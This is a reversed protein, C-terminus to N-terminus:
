RSFLRVSRRDALLHRVDQGSTMLPAAAMWDPRDGNGRGNSLEFRQWGATSYTCSRLGFPSPIACLYQRSSGRQRLGVQDWATQPQLLWHAANERTPILDCAPQRSSRRRPLSSFLWGSEIMRRPRGNRAARGNCRAGGFAARARPRGGQRDPRRSRIMAPQGQNWRTAALKRPGVPLQDIVTLAQGQLLYALALCGAVVILLM